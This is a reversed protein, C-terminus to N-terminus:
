ACAYAFDHYTLGIWEEDFPFVQWIYLTYTYDTITASMRTTLEISDLNRLQPKRVQLLACYVYVYM